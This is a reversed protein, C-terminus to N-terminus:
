SSGHTRATSAWREYRNRDIWAGTREAFDRAAPLMLDIAGARAASSSVGSMADDVHLLLHAPVPHPPRPAIAVPPLAALAADRAELDSYWEVRQIQAWKDAGMVLLDFGDAVDVLLQADTVQIDLWSTDAAVRELVEIRDEFRPHDVIEKALAVRSVSWVVRDLGHQTRAAASLELHAITPPNFSGPYVGTRNSRTM